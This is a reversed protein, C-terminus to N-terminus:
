CVHLFRSYGQFGNDSKNIITKWCSYLKKGKSFKVCVLLRLPIVYPLSPLSVPLPSLESPFRRFLYLMFLLSFEGSNGYNLFASIRRTWMKWVSAQHTFQHHTLSVAHTRFLLRGVRATRLHAAKWYMDSM